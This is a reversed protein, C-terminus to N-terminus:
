TNKYFATNHDSHIRQNTKDAGLSLPLHCRLHCLLIDSKKTTDCSSMNFCFHKGCVARSTASWDSSESLGRHRRCPRQLMKGHTFTHAGKVCYTAQWSNVGPMKSTKCPWEESNSHFASSLTASYPLVSNCETDSISLILFWTSWYLLFLYSCYFEARRERRVRNWRYPLVRLM